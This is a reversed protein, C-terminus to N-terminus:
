VRTIADALDQPTDIDILIHPAASVLKARSLLGRAGGDGKTELLLPWISRPFLAPPKPYTGSSKTGDSSAVIDNTCEMEAILAAIHDPTVFPMDALCILLARAKTQRAKNVALHLSRSLGAAPDDNITADFGAQGFSSALAADCIAYQWGFGLRSLMHAARLGLPVGDLDALLKNAGFRQSRGAALIAVAIDGYAM